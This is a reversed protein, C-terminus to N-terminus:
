DNEEDGEEEDDYEDQGSENDDEFDSEEFENGNSDRRDICQLTPFRNKIEFFVNVM